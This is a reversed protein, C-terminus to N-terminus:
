RDAIYIERGIPLRGGKEQFGGQLNRVFLEQIGPPGGEIGGL